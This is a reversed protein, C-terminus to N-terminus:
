HQTGDSHAHITSDRADGLPRSAPERGFGRLNGWGLLVLMLGVCFEMSLGIRPPIVLTFGIIGVGVAFITITHGIGWLAGILAASSARRERSVITSVAVVHDSDTAHRMGLIFGLALVAFLGVSASHSVLGSFEQM